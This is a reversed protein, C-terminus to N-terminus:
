KGIGGPGKDLIVPFPYYPLWLAVPLSPCVVFTYQIIKSCVHNGHQYALPRLRHLDQKGRLGGTENLSPCGMELYGHDGTDSHKKESVPDKHLGPQGIVLYALM